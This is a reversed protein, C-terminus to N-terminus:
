LAAVVSLLFGVDHLRVCLGHNEHFPLLQLFRTDFFFFFFCVFGDSGIMMGSIMAQSFEASCRM